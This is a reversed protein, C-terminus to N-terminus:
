RPRMARHVEVGRESLLAVCALLAASIVRETCGAPVQDAFYTFVVAVLLGGLQEGSVGLGFYLTAVGALVSGQVHVCM